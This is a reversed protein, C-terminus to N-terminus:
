KSDKFQHASVYGDYSSDGDIPNNAKALSLVKAGLDSHQVLITERQAAWASISRSASFVLELHM